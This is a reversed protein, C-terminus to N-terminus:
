FKKLNQKLTKFSTCVDSILLVSELQIHKKLSKHLYVFM